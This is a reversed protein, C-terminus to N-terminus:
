KPVPKLDFSRVEDPGSVEVRLGSEANYRSPIYQIVERITTPGGPEIDLRPVTRGTEKTATIDVLYTGAALGEKSGIAYQGNEITAAAGYGPTGNLPHLRIVGDRVPENAYTVDGRVAVPPRGCGLLCASLLVVLWSWGWAAM